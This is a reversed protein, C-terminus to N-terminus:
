LNNIEEISLGTCESIFDIDSGKELMKKATELAKQKAGLKIGQETAEEIANLHLKAQHLEKDYLGIVEEESSAEIADKIYQEMIKDGWSVEKLLDKDIENFTLLLKEFKSIEENNYCKKRINPLYIHIFQLKDFFIENDENKLMYREMIKDNEKFTFNNINLQYVRQYEYAKDKLTKSKYLDAMYSVNRELMAKNANNNVEIGIIENNIKCVFDVESGKEDKNKKDLKNKVFIINDYVQKYDLNLALAILYSAYEKRSENNIMTNFMADSIIPIKYGEYREELTYSYKFSMERELMTKIKDGGQFVSYLM